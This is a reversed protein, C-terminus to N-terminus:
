SVVVRYYAEDKNTIQSRRAYKIVDGEEAGLEKLSADTSKVKPLQQVTCKLEKLLDKLEAESLKSAKPVLFHQFSSDLNLCGFFDISSALM